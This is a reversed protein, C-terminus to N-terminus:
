RRRRTAVLGGLALLGGSAPAPVNLAFTFTNDEGDYSATMIELTYTGAALVGSEAYDDFYYEDNVGQDGSHDFVYGPGTLRYTAFLSNEETTFDLTYATASSLEFTVLMYSTCTAGSSSAPAGSGYSSGGSAVISTSTLDSTQQAYASAGAFVTDGIYAAIEYDIREDFLGTTTSETHTPSTEVIEDYVDPNSVGGEADVYRLTSVYNIQAAAPLATAAVALAAYTRTRM